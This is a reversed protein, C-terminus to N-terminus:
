MDSLETEGFVSSYIVHLPKDRVDRGADRLAERHASSVYACRAAMDERVNGYHEWPIWNKPLGLQTDHLGPEVFFRVTMARDMMLDQIRMSVDMLQSKFRKKGESGRNVPTTLTAVTNGNDDQFMLTVPSGFVKLHEYPKDHMFLFANSCARVFLESM